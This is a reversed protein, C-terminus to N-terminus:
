GSMRVLMFELLSRDTKSANCSRCAATLNTWDDGGGLHVPAIHDVEGAAAAGCYSCPDLRLMEVYARRDAYDQESWGTRAQRVFRRRIDAPYSACALCRSM